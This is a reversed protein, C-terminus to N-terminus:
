GELRESLYGDDVSLGVPYAKKYRRIYGPVEKLRRNIDAAIDLFMMSAIEHRVEAFMGYPIARYVKAELEEALTGIAQVRM